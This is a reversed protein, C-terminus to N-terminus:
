DFPRTEIRILAAAEAALRTAEAPSEGTAAAFGPRELSSRAGFFEEGPEAYVMSYFIGPASQAAELGTV